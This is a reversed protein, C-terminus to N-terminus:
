ATRWSRQDPSLVLGFRHASYAVDLSATGREKRISQVSYMPGLNVHVQWTDGGDRSVYVFGSGDVRYSTGNVTVTTGSSRAAADLAGFPLRLTAAVAVLGVGKLFARRPMSGRRPARPRNPASM